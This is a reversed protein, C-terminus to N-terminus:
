RLKLSALAVLALLISIIWFRVIVKPEAWGKLEFHHHIPAMKFVRKGTLKYSTTQTIVSIAELLFLGCIIISLLENKSLVALTGLAGGLSLSGLDGMFVQAPYSNFWLFGIGSGVIAGCGICLESIGNIHPIKLYSALDFTAYIQKGDVDVPFQLVTGSVYCLILYTAAAVAVPAIALGDLGDTLNVANSTGVIVVMAFIAYAVMPLLLTFKDASVFPFYLESNYHISEDMFLVVMAIATISFQLILKWRGPLGRSGKEKIKLYDDIFGVGGFFTTISLFLWVYHNTLDAWLLTSVVLSLLILSGGMTPTGRKKLHSQPGDDRVVQGVQKELLKGIFKPYMFSMLLATIMAMVVRFSVYRFVNFPAFYDRLEYLFMLM